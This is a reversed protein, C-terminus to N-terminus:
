GDLTWQIECVHGIWGTTVAGGQLLLDTFYVTGTCDTVCLRITISKVRSISKPSINHAIQNFYAM